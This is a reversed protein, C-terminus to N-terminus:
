YKKQFYRTVLYALFLLGALFLFGTILEIVM